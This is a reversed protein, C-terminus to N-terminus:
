LLQGEMALLCFPGWAAVVQLGYMYVGGQTNIAGLVSGAGTVAKLITGNVVYLSCFVYGHVLLAIIFRLFQNRPM